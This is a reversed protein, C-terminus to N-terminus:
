GRLVNSVQRNSESYEATEPYGNAALDDTQPSHPSQSTAQEIRLLQDGLSQIRRSVDENNQEM